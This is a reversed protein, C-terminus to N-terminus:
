FSKNRVTFEVRQKRGAFECGDVAASSDRFTVVTDNFSLGSLTVNMELDNNSGDFITWNLCRIQPTSGFRVFTLTKNIHLTGPHAQTVHCIYPDKNTNSGDLYIHDGPLALNVARLITKCPTSLVCPWKDNGSKRSVYLNAGDTLVGAFLLTHNSNRTFPYWYSHFLIVGGSIM